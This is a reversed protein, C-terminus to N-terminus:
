KPTRTYYPPSLISLRSPPPEEPSNPPNSGRPELARRPFDIIATIISMIQGGLNSLSRGSVIKPSIEFIPGRFFSAERSGKSESPGIERSLINGEPPTM